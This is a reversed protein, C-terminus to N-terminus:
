EGAAHLVANRFLGLAAQDLDASAAPRTNRWAPYCSDTVASM